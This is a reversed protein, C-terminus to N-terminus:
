GDHKFFKIRSVLPDLVRFGGAKSVPSTEMLRIFFRLCPSVVFVLGFFNLLFILFLALLM